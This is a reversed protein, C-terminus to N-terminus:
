ARSRGADGIPGALPVVTLSRVGQAGHILVGEIDATASPGTVLVAYRATKFRPDRYADHLNGLIDSPDLLVVFHQALYALANVQLEAESLWISGTEAVGFAARVIGVDVDALDTPNTSRALARTGKVEATASCIVRAQPFLSRIFEDLDGGGDKPAFKGGMRLLAERFDDLLSRTTSEFRPVDPLAPVPRPENARVASLIADRSTM